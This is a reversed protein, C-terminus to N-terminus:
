KTIEGFVSIACRQAQETGNAYGSAISYKKHTISYPRNCWATNEDPECQVVALTWHEARALSRWAGAATGAIDDLQSWESWFLNTM